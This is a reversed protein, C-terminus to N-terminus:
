YGLLITRHSRTEHGGGSDRSLAFMGANIGDISQGGLSGWPIDSAVTVTYDDNWSGVTGSSTTSIIEATNSGFFLPNNAFGGNRVAANNSM